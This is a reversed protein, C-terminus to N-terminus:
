LHFKTQGVKKWVKMLRRLKALIYSIVAGDAFM